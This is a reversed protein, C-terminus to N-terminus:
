TSFEGEATNMLTIEINLYSSDYTDFTPKIQLFDLPYLSYIDDDDLPKNHSLCNIILDNNIFALDDMYRFSYFFRNIKEYKNM